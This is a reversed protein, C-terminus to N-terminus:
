YLQQKNNGYSKATGDKLIATLFTPTTLIPRIDGGCYLGYATGALRGFVGSVVGMLLVSAIGISDFFNEVEVGAFDIAVFKKGVSKSSFISLSNILSSVGLTTLLPLREEISDPLLSFVSNM